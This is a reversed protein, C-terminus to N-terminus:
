SVRQTLIDSNSDIGSDTDIVSLSSLEKARKNHEKCVHIFEIYNLKKILVCLEDYLDLLVTNNIKNIKNIQNIVLQSDGIVLLERINMEIAKKIGWILAYYEAQNITKDTGIYNSSGWIEEGNKYIVAGVGCSGHSGKCYGDFYLVYDCTPFIKNKNIPKMKTIPILNSNM